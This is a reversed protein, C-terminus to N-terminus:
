HLVVPNVLTNVTRVHVSSSKLWLDLPAPPQKAGGDRVRRKLFEALWGQYLANESIKEKRLSASRPM